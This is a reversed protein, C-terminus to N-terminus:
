LFRHSHFFHVNSQSFMQFQKGAFLKLDQIAPRPMEKLSTHLIMIGFGFRMCNQLGFLFSSTFNLINM